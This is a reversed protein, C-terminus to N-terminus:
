LKLFCPPIAAVAKTNQCLFQILTSRISIWYNTSSQVRYILCIQPAMLIVDSGSLETSKQLHTWGAWFSDKMEPPADALVIDFSLHRGIIQLLAQLAQDDSRIVILVRDVRSLCWAELTHQILPKRRYTKLLKPEGMRRSLGAAPIIAFSSM